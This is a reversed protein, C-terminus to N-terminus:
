DDDDDYRDSKKINKKGNKNRVTEIKDRSLSLWINGTRNCLRRRMTWRGLVLTTPFCPCGFAGIPGNSQHFQGFQRDVSANVTSIHRLLTAPARQDFSWILRTHTIFWLPHRQTPAPYALVIYDYFSHSSVFSSSTYFDIL